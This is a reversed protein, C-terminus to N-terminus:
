QQQKAKENVRQDLNADDFINENVTFEALSNEISLTSSTPSPLDVSLKGPLQKIPTPSLPENDSDNHPSLDIEQRIKDFKTETTSSRKAPDAKAYWTHQTKDHARDEEHRQKWTMLRTVLLHRFSNQYEIDRQNCLIQLDHVSMKDLRKDSWYKLNYPISQMAQNDYQDNNITQTLKETTQAPMCIDQPAKYQHPPIYISGTTTYGTQRNLHQTSPVSSPISLRRGYYQYQNSSQHLPPLTRTKQKESQSSDIKKDKKDKKPKKDMSPKYSSDVSLASFWNRM